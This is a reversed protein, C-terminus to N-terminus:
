QIRDEQAAQHREQCVQLRQAEREHQSIIHLDTEDISHVWDM